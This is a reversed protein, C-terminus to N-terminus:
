NVAWRHIETNKDWFITVLSKSINTPDSTRFFSMGSGSTLFAGSGSGCCQMLVIIIVQNECIDYIPQQQHKSQAYHLLEWSYLVADLQSGVNVSCPESYLYM